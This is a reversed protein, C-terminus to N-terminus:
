DNIGLDGHDNALEYAAVGTAAAGAGLMLAILEM